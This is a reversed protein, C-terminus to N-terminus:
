AAGVVSVRSGYSLFGRRLSSSSASIEEEGGDRVDADREKRAYVGQTMSSRRGCAGVREWVSARGREGESARM